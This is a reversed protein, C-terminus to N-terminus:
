RHHTIPIPLPGRGHTLEEIPRPNSDYLRRELRRIGIRVGFPEHPRDFLLTEISHNWETLAMELSGYRLKDGVIMVLAIVLTKAVPQDLADRRM